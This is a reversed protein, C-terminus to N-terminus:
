CDDFADLVDDLSMASLHAPNILSTMDFDDDRARSNRIRGHRRRSPPRTSHTALQSQGAIDRKVFRQELEKWMRMGEGYSSCQSVFNDRITRILQTSDKFRRRWRVAENHGDVIACSFQHNQDVYGRTPDVCRTSTIHWHGCFQCLYVSLECNNEFASWSACALAQERNAYIHKSAVCGTALMNRLREDHEDAASERVHDPLEVPQLSGVGGESLLRDYVAWGSGCICEGVYFHGLDRTPDSASVVFRAATEYVYDLAEDYTAFCDCHKM